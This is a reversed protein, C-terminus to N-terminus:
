GRLFHGCRCRIRRLAMRWGWSTQVGEVEACENSSCKRIGGKRLVAEFEAAGGFEEHNGGVFYMGLPPKLELLPATAIFRISRESGDFLDGPFSFIIQRIWLACWRLSGVICLRVWQDSLGLHLDSM